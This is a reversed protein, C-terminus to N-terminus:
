VLQHSGDKYEVEVPEKGVNQIITIALDIYAASENSGAALYDNKTSSLSSIIEDRMSNQGASFGDAVLIYNDWSKKWRSAFDVCLKEKKTMIVLM